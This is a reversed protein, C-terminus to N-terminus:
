KKYVINGTVFSGIHRGGSYQDLQSINVDLVSWGEVIRKSREDQYKKLPQRNYKDVVTEM